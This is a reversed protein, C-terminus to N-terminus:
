WPVLVNFPIEQADPSSVKVFQYTVTNGDKGTYTFADFATGGTTVITGTDELPTGPTNPDLLHLNNKRNASPNARFRGAITKDFAM